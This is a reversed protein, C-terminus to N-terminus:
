HKFKSTIQQIFRTLISKNSIIIEASGVLDRDFPIEKNSSTVLHNPLDISVHYYGDKNPSSSIKNILGEIIGYEDYSYNELKILVKQNKIVKSIERASVLISGTPEVKDLSSIKILEEGDKVNKGNYLLTLFNAKGDFTSIIINKQVWENIVLRLNTLSEETKDISAKNNVLRFFDELKIQIIYGVNLHKKELNQKLLQPDNSKAELEKSLWLIDKYNVDTRLVLIAENKHVLDGDKILIDSIQGNKLTMINESHSTSTIVVSTNITEPYKIYYSFILLLIIAIATFFIGWRVIWLPQKKYLEVFDNSYESLNNSLEKNKNKTKDGM